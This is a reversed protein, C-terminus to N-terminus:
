VGILAEFRSFVDRSRFSPMAVANGSFLPVEQAEQSISPTVEPL